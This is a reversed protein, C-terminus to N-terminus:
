PQEERYRINFDCIALCSAIGFSSLSKLKAQSLRYKSFEQAVLQEYDKRFSEYKNVADELKFVLNAGQKLTLKYSELLEDHKEKVEGFNNEELYELFASGILFSQIHTSVKDQTEAENQDCIIGMKRKLNCVHVHKEKLFRAIENQDVKRRFMNLRELFESSKPIPSACDLNLKKQLATILIADVLCYAADRDSMGIFVGCLCYLKDHRFFIGSGSLGDQSNDGASAMFLFDEAPGKLKIKDDSFDNMEFKFFNRFETVAQLPCGRFFYSSDPVIKDAITFSPMEASISASEIRIAAIDIDASKFDDPTIIEQVISKLHDGSPTEISIDTVLIEADYEYSKGYLVHAATFAYHEGGKSYLVGTGSFRGKVFIKISVSHLFGIDTTSL